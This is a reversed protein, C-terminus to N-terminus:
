YRMMSRLLDPEDQNGTIRTAIIPNSITRGANSGHIQNRPRNTGQYGDRYHGHNHGGQYGRNTSNSNNSWNNRHGFNNNHIPNNSFSHSHSSNYGPRNSYQNNYHNTPGSSSGSEREQNAHSNYKFHSKSHSPSNGNPSLPAAPVTVSTGSIYQTRYLQLHEKELESLCQSFLQQIQKFAYSPRAVNKTPDLPDKIWCSTGVTAIQEANLDFFIPQKGYM